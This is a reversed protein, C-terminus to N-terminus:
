TGAGPYNGAEAALFLLGHFHNPMVAFQDLSINAAHQPIAQWCQAAIRGLQSLQMQAEAVRGLTMAHNFTCITIFYMGPTSYDYNRLRPSKRQPLDVPHLPSEM